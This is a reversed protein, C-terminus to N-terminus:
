SIAVSDVLCQYLEYSLFQIFFNGTPTFAMCHSGEDLTVEPLEFPISYRLTKSIPFVGISFGETETLYYGHM